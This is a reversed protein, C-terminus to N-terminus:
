WSRGTARLSRPPRWIPSVVYDDERWSPPHRTAATRAATVTRTRTLPRRRPLLLSAAYGVVFVLVHALIATYRDNVGDLPALRLSV